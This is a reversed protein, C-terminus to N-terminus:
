RRGGITLMAGGEIATIGVTTAPATAESDQSGAQHFILAGGVVGAILGGIALTSGFGYLLRARGELSELRELDSVTDTPADDIDSQVSDGALLFVGGVVVAGAGGLALYWSYREVQSFDFRPHDGVGYAPGASVSTASDQGPGLAGAEGSDLAGSGSGLDGTYGDRISGGGTETSAGADAAPVVVGFLAAAQQEVEAARASRRELGAASVRVLVVSRTDGDGSVKGFVLVDVGVAGPITQLCETDSTVCGNIAILDATSTAALDVRAGARGVGRAAAATLEGREADTGDGTFPVVMVAKGTYPAEPQAGVEGAAIAAILCGLVTARM